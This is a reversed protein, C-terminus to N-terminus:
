PKDPGRASLKDAMISAMFASLVGSMNANNDAGGGGSVVVDPTIKVKGESVRRMVEIMALPLMGLANAQKQYAEATAQGIARIKEGEARGVAEVGAAVGEQELRTSQGKGEALVIAQQKQQSAIQVDIEAKVLSPQLDAQAKTKEMEKRRGEAEQQADFMSKQQTAVVKNTLTQMLREPLKIQCILVSVCEVYYRKLEEIVHQEALRQQEHRDQMFNMAETSSAQNRFSSDILPHIVAEILNQITGIRAVMHPAQQPLVRIIVKVEVTMEFGDKSVIALPNFVVPMDKTPKTDAWDITINVTPILHPTFAWRNIYYTGPGLVERQIGRYGPEVVYREVGQILRNEPEAQAPRSPDKGVNSVIVAVEGRQVLLVDAVGVEFMLPNVYYTGPRLFDFQPGRQGGNALFAAANQFEEDGEVTKAVYEGQPLPEGDRATVLGVKTAQVMIAPKIEVQFLKTNIRFSGPLLVDIQPGKQGGKELFARGDQFNNHGEIKKGLLRPSEIPRGDTAVVIGIQSNPVRTMPVREVRFLYPNIRYLGPPLVELQPGKEGGNKLFTEGDQFLSHGEVVRAFIRGPEVPVGDISEMLGVEDEGIKLMPTKEVRYIFPIVFHLGPALTRAQMGVETSYAVVRGGPLKRGLWRRELIAIQTGGVIVISHYVVFLGAVALWFEIRVVAALMLDM